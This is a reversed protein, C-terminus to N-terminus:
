ASRCRGVGRGQGGERSPREELREPGVVVRLVHCCVQGSRITGRVLLDLQGIRGDHRQDQLDISGECAIRHYAPV